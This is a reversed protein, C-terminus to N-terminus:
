FKVPCSVSRALSLSPENQWQRPHNRMRMRPPRRRHSLRTVDGKSSGLARTFSLLRSLWCVCVGADPSAWPEAELLHSLCAVSGLVRVAALRKPVCCGLDQLFRQCLSTPFRRVHLHSIAFGWTVVLALHGESFFQVLGHSLFVM